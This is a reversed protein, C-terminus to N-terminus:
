NHSAPAEIHGTFHQQQCPPRRCESPVANFDFDLVQQGQAGITYIATGTAPANAFPEATKTAWIESSSLAVVGLRGVGSALDDLRYTGTGAFQPLSVSVQPFAPAGSIQGVFQLIHDADNSNPQPASAVAVNFRKALAGDGVIWYSTSQPETPPEPETPPKPPPDQVTVAISKSATAGDEDSAAVTITGSSNLAESYAAGQTSGQPSTWEVNCAVASKSVPDKCSADLQLTDGKTIVLTGTVPTPVGNVNQTIEIDLGNLLQWQQETMSTNIVNGAALLGTTVLVNASEVRPTYIAQAINLMTGIQVTATEVHKELWHGKRFSDCEMLEGLHKIAYARLPIAVADYAATYQPKQLANELTEDNQLIVNSDDRQQLLTAADGCAFLRLSPQDIRGAVFALTPAAYFQTATDIVAQKLLPSSPSTTAAQAGPGYVTWIADGINTLTFAQTQSEGPALAIPNALLSSEAAIFRQQGNNIQFQYNNGDADPTIKQISLSLGAPSTGVASIQIKSIRAAATTNSAIVDTAAATVAADLLTLLDSSPSQLNLEGSDAKKRLADALAKVTPLAAFQNASIEFHAGREEIAGHISSNLLVLSVATSLADVTTDEFSKVFALYIPQMQVEAPYLTVFQNKAVVLKATDGALHAISQYSSRLNLQDFTSYYAPKSIRINVERSELCDVAVNAINALVLGAGHTVTCLQDSTGTDVTVAYTESKKYQHAFAFAGDTSIDLTEFGDTVRVAGTLGSIAGSVAFTQAVPTTPPRWRRWFWRRLCGIGRNDTAARRGEIGV